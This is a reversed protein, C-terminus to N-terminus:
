LAQPSPSTEGAPAPAPKRESFRTGLVVTTSWAHGLNSKVPAARLIASRVALDFQHDPSRKLLTASTPNGQRDFTVSFQAEYVGFPMARPRKYHIDSWIADLQANSLSPLVEVAYSLIVNFPPGSYSPLPPAAMIARQVERAYNPDTGPDVEITSTVKGTANFEVIFSAHYRGPAQDGKTNFRITKAIAKQYAAGVQPRPAARSATSGQASLSPRQPAPAHSPARVSDTQSFLFRLLCVVIFIAFALGGFSSRDGNSGAQGMQLTPEAAAVAATASVAPAPRVRAYEEHWAKIAPGPVTLFLYSPFHGMLTDVHPMDLALREANTAANYRLRAMIQRHRQVVREHQLDFQRREEIAQNVISGARGLQLLRRPDTHWEFVTVAAPLLSENGREWGQVLHNAVHGEFLARATLNFLEDDNLRVRLEAEFLTVDSVTRGKALRELAVRLREFVRGSLIEPDVVDEQVPAEPATEQENRAAMEAQWAIWRLATEYAERLDQFGAADLEQDILKLERAYARRIARADTDARLGLRTLFAPTDDSRSAQQM